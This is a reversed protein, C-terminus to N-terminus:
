PTEERMANHDAEAIKRLAADWALAPNRNLWRAIRAALARPVPAADSGLESLVANIRDQVLAQGRMRRYAGALTDADPIM